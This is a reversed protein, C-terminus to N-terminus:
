RGSRRVTLIFAKADCDKMHEVFHFIIDLQNKLCDYSAEKQKLLEYEITSVITTETM